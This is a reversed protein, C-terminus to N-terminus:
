WSARGRGRPDAAGAAAGGPGVEIAQVDGMPRDREQLAHGLRELGRRVKADLREFVLEDPMWQHHTRPAAVAERLPMGLDVVNLIVECVSSIITPGGPSGLVLAPRGGRLLVTPTMSSLPRKGPAIANREGQILGYLNPAGPKTAFDDMENNLLFGAAVAGCGYAGNLTTTCAVAWGEGDLVSFHCTSEREARELGGGVEASPTARGMDISARRRDLYDRALLRGTPVDVFGPDGLYLARDAFARRSVEALYHVRQSPRMGAYDM